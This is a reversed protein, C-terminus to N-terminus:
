GLLEPRTLFLFHAFGLAWLCAMVGYSLADTSTGSPRVGFTWHILMQVFRGEEPNEPSRWQGTRLWTELNNIVCSGRNVIWQTVVAPLLLLYISLATTSPIAWGTLIYLGVALHFIFLALGLTDSRPGSPEQFDISAM